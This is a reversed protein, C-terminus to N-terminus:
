YKQVVEDFAMKAIKGIVIKNDKINRTLVTISIAPNDNGDFIIGVDHELKFELISGTKHAIRLKPSLYIPIATNIQQKSMINLMAYHITKSYHKGELILDLLRDMDGATTMNDIGALVKEYDMMRRQVITNKLGIEDMTATIDKMKLLDLMINTATDDSIIIMLTLIDHYTLKLGDHMERLVGTDYVSTGVKDKDKLIYESETSIKGNAVNNYFEWLIPLKIISAAAFQKDANICIKEGSRIDRVVAGIRDGYKTIYTYISEFMAIGRYNIKSVVNVSLITRNWISIKVHLGFDM